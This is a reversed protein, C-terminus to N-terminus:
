AELATFGAQGIAEKLREASLRAPEYQVHIHKQPVKPKVERVGPVLRLAETIKMACGECVMNPILFEREALLGQEAVDERELRIWRIRLTNLLIACISVVMFLIAFLPTVYGLAAVIMGVINFLVAVVVNRTLTRYSAKGLTLANLVDDLRDGVLIVGASEIAVDTGAGVAIGVDAQAMAPADNIGDGVMAVKRGEQQLAEIAVVKDTPLLEARVEEVSISKGIADAVPRADGTLMVTSLGRDRLKDMLRRTGPRPTDQLAFLGIVTRWRAILVVTKGEASLRDINSRVEPSLEIGRQEIFSPKGAVIDAGDLTGSVGKGPWARFREIPLKQAGERQAFFSISQGLPHESSGEVAGAVHLLETGDTEFPVVPSRPGVM